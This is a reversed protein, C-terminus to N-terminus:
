SPVPQRPICDANPQGANHPADRGRVEGKRAQEEIVDVAKYYHAKVSNWDHGHTVVYAFLACVIVRVFVAIPHASAGASTKKKNFVVQIIEVWRRNRLIGKLSPLSSVL